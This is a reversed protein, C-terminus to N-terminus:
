LENNSAAEYLFTALSSDNMKSFPLLSPLRKNETLPYKINDTIRATKCNKDFYKNVLFLEKLPNKTFYLIQDILESLLFRDM